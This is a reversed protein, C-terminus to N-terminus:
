TGEQASCRAWKSVILINAPAAFPIVQEGAATNQVVTNDASADQQLLSVGGFAAGGISAGSGGGSGAGAAATREAASKEGAAGSSAAGNSNSSSQGTESARTSAFKTAAIGPAEATASAGEGAHVSFRKMDALSALTSSAKCVLGRM